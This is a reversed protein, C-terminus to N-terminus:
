GHSQCSPDCSLAGHMEHPKYSSPEPASVVAPLVTTETSVWSKHQAYYISGCDVINVQVSDLNWKKLTGESPDIRFKIESCYSM